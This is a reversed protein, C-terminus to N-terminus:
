KKNDDDAPHIGDKDIYMLQGFSDDKGMEEKWEGYCGKCDPIPNTKIASDFHTNCFGAIITEKEVHVHGGFGTAKEFCIICNLTSAM